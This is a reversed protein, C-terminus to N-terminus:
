VVDKNKLFLKQKRSIHIFLGYEARSFAGLVVYAIRDKVWRYYMYLVKLLDQLKM